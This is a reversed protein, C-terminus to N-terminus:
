LASRNSARWRRARQGAGELRRSAAAQRRGRAAARPAAAASRPRARWWSTPSHFSVAAARPLRPPGRARRPGPPPSGPRRRGHDGAALPQGVRSSSRRALRSAWRSRRSPTPGSTAPRSQRSRERPSPRRADEADELRAAGVQREIRGIRPAGRRDAPPSARRPTARRAPSAARGAPGRPAPDHPEVVLGQRRLALRGGGAADPARRGRRRSRCRPSSRGAWPRATSCPLRALKVAAPCSASRAEPASSRTSGADGARRRCRRAPTQQGAARPPRRRRQRRRPRRQVELPQDLAARSPTVDSCATGAAISGPASRARGRRAAAGGAARRQDEAAVRQRGVESPSRRCRERARRRTARRGSRSPSRRAGAPASGASRGPAPGARGGTALARSGRAAVGSPRGHRDAHRALEADAAGAHRAAVQPRGSGVASRKTGSGNPGSRAAARGCRRGPGGGAPRRRQLEQAPEVVLDLDAAEADLQPLDLGREGAM